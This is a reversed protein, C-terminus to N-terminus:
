ARFRASHEVVLLFFLKYVVCVMETLPAKRRYGLNHGINSLLETSPLKRLVPGRTENCSVLMPKIGAM